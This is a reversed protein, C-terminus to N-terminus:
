PALHKLIPIRQLLIVIAVSLPMVVLFNVLIGVGPAIRAGNLVFGLRGSKFLAILMVHVMYVGFSTSSLVSVLRGLRAFRAYIAEYPLGQLLMFATLSMLIVNLSLYEYFFSNYQGSSRLLLYTGLITVVLAALYIVLAAINQKRSPQLLDLFRGAIFYGSFGTFVVWDLGLTLHFLRSLIPPLCVAVLWAALFYGLEPMGAHRTFIRLIPTALYLGLIMYLFWFHYAVTGEMIARLADGLSLHEGGFGIRWLLYIVAWGLLPIVVKNIRKRFFTGLSEERLPDLLLAGSVLVFLPVGIRATADVLNAAWWNARGSAYGRDVLAGAIHLAVVLVIGLARAADAYLKRPPPPLPM